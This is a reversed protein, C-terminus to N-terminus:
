IIEAHVTSNEGIAIAWVNETAGTLAQASKVHAVLLGIDNAAPEGVSTEVRIQQRGTNQVIIDDGASAGITATINVWTDAALAIDTQSAM